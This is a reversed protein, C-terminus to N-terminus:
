PPVLLRADPVRLRALQQLLQGAVVLLEGVGRGVGGRPEDDRGALYSNIVDFPESNLICIQILKNAYQVYSTDIKRVILDLYTGWFYIRRKM